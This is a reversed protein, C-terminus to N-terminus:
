GDESGVIGEGGIDVVDEEGRDELVCAITEAMTEGNNYFWEGMGALFTEVAGHGYGNGYRQQESGGKFGRLVPEEEGVAVRFLQLIQGPHLKLVDEVLYYHTVEDGWGRYVEQAAAARSWRGALTTPTHIYQTYLPFKAGAQQLRISHPAEGGGVLLVDPQEGGYREKFGARAIANSPVVHCELVCRFIRQLSAM